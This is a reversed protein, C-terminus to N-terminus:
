FDVDSHMNFTNFANGKEDLQNDGKEGRFAAITSSESPHVNGISVSHKERTLEQTSHHM